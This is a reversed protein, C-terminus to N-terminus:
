PGSRVTKRWVPLAKLTTVASADAFERGDTVGKAIIEAMEEIPQRFTTLAYGDWGAQEIDDFGLVCLDRPIVMGFDQRAIDMFGCALLDTVCFVADPRAAGPLLLRAAEAGSRYSTPGVKIVQPPEFGAEVIAASFLKERALLSPSNNTSSVIAFSRCGARALMHRADNMASEHDLNIHEAEEIQGQRNILIVHQGSEICTRVLSVPPAGSLVITASARYNLTQHLAARSDAENGATNIVMVARGAAQIRRTLAELLASQYPAHLDGGLICIPRSKEQSLGRALHNVHYNLEEAAALVKRRTEDSVSAGATFTRSVASRSVGARQAVESASAFNQPPRNSM